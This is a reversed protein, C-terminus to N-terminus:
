HRVAQKRWRAAERLNGRQENLEALKLQLSRDGPQNALLNGVVM